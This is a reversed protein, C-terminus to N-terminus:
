ASPRPAPCPHLLLGLASLRPAPSIPTVSRSPSWSPPGFPLAPRSSSLSAPGFPCTRSLPRSAPLAARSSPCSSLWIHLAPLIPPVVQLGAVYAPVSQLIAVFAPGNLLNTVLSSTLFLRHCWFIQSCTLAPQQILMQYRSHLVPPRCSSHLVPTLPLRCSLTLAPHLVPLGGSHLAPLLCSSTQYPTVFVASHHDPLDPQQDASIALQLELQPDASDASQLDPQTDAPAASDATIALQQPDPLIGASAASQQPDLQVDAPTALPEPVPQVNAPESVPRANALVASPEPVPVPRHHQAASLALPTPSSFSGTTNPAMPVLRRKPVGCYVTIIALCTGEFPSWQIDSHSRLHEMYPELLGPHLSFALLSSHLSLHLSFAIMSTAIISTALM